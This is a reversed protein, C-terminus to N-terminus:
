KAPTAAAAAAQSLAQLQSELTAITADATALVASLDPYPVAAVGGGAAQGDAYGAQYVASVAASHSNGINDAYVQGADASM